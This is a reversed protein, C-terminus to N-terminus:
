GIGAQREADEILWRVGALDDVASRLLSDVEWRAYFGCRELAALREVIAYDVARGDACSGQLTAVTAVTAVSSGAEVPATGAGVTALTAVTAVGQGKEVPASGQRLTALTAPTAVEGNRLWRSLAM